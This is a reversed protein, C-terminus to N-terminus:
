KVFKYKAGLIKRGREGWVLNGERAELDKMKMWGQYGRWNKKADYSNKGDVAGVIKNKYKIVYHKM